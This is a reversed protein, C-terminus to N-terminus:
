KGFQRKIGPHHPHGLSTSRRSNSGRLRSTRFGFSPPSGYGTDDTSIESESKSSVKRNLHRVESAYFFCRRCAVDATTGQQLPTSSMEIAFSHILPCLK